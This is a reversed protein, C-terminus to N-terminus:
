DAFRDDVWFELKGDKVPVKNLRWGLESARKWEKGDLSVAIDRGGKMEVVYAEGTLNPIVIHLSPAGEEPTERDKMVPPSQLVVGGSWKKMADSDTSWVNWKDTTGKDKNWADPTAVVAEAEYVMPQALVPAMLALVLLVTLFRFCSM